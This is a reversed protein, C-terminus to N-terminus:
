GIKTNKQFFYQQTHISDFSSKNDVKELKYRQVVQSFMCELFQTNKTISYVTEFVVRSQRAIDEVNTLWNQSKKVSLLGM